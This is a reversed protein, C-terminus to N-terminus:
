GTTWDPTAPRLLQKVAGTLPRSRIAYDGVGIVDGDRQAAARIERAQMVSAVRWNIPMPDPLPVELAPGYALCALEAVELLEDLTAEPLKGADAWHRTAFDVDAAWRDAIPV